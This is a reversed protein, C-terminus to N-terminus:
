TKIAKKLFALQRGNGMGKLPISTYRLHPLLYRRYKEGALFIFHDSELNTVRRLEAIVQEAWLRIECVRMRNLTKEYPAIEREPDVLGYLASLIFVRDPRLTGGYAWWKRFLDSVYLDKAKAPSALKTKVCSILVIRSVCPLLLWERNLM